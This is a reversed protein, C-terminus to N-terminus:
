TAPKISSVLSRLTGENVVGPQQIFFHIENGTAKDTVMIEAFAEGLKKGQLVFVKLSAQEIEYLKVERVRNFSITKMATSLVGFREVYALRFLDYSDEVGTLYRVAANGQGFIENYVGPGASIKTESKTDEYYRWTGSAQQLKFQRPLVFGLGNLSFSRGANPRGAAVWDKKEPM